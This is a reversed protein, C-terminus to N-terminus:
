LLQMYNSPVIGTTGDPKRAQWWKGSNDVIDLIDGKAFSIEAPDDANASYAYLARAKYGYDTGGETHDAQPKDAADGAASTQGSRVAPSHPAASSAGGHQSTAAGYDSGPGTRSLAGGAGSNRVSQVSTHAVPMSIAANNSGALETQSSTAGYPAAQYGGNTTPGSITGVGGAYGATYANGNGMAGRGGAGYRGAAAGSAPGSLQGNGFRSAISYFTSEEESTFFFLWIIDVAACLIYGAGMARYPGDMTTGAAGYVGQDAGLVAFVLAVATWASLQLRAVPIADTIITLIVGITLFLQAFIGFWVYPIHPALATRTASDHRGQAVAQAIFAVFWGIFGIVVTAALLLNSFLLSIDVGGGSKGRAAMNSGHAHFRHLNIDKESYYAANNSAARNGAASFHYPRALPVAANEGGAWLGPVVLEPATLVPKALPLSLPEVKGYDELTDNVRNGVGIPEEEQPMADHAEQHLWLASELKWVQHPPSM